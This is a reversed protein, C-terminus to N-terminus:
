MASFHKFFDDRYSNSFPLLKGMISIESENFEEIHQMNVAFSRHIRVLKDHQLREMVTTLNIRVVHRHQKTQIYTHNKDAELYMIESKNLKVFRYNQKIFLADDIQLIVDAGLKVENAAQNKTNEKTNEAQYQPPAQTNSFANFAMELSIQLSREDFPKLLYASPKSEKARNVTQIDAQATLYVIPIQRIANFQFVTDIGDMSGDINVDVLALDPQHQKFLSVAEAGSAAIGVVSYGWDILLGEIDRAILQQDEVILIKITSM